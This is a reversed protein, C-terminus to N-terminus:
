EPAYATDEGWRHSGRFYEDQLLAPELRRGGNIPASEERLMEVVEGAVFESHPSEPLIGNLEARLSATLTKQQLFFDSSLIRSVLPLINLNGRGTVWTKLIMLDRKLEALKTRKLILGEVRKREQAGLPLNFEKLRGVVKALREDVAEAVNDISDLIAPIQRARYVTRLTQTAHSATAFRLGGRGHITRLERAIEMLLATFRTKLDGNAGGRRLEALALGAEALRKQQSFRTAPVAGVFEGYADEFEAATAGTVELGESLLLELAGPTTLAAQWNIGTAFDSM